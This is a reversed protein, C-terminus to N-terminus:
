LLAARGPATNRITYEHAPWTGVSSSASNNASHELDHQTYATTSLSHGDALTAKRSLGLLKHGDQWVIDMTGSRRHYHVSVLENSLIIEKGRDKAGVQGSAQSGSFCTLAVFAAIGLIELPLSQKRVCSM